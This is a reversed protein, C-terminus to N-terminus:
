KILRQYFAGNPNTIEVFYVGNEYTSFDVETYDEHEKIFLVRGNNDLIRLIGAEGKIHLENFVPNPYIAVDLEINSNLGNTSIYVIDDIAFYTPTNIWGGSMDSSEFRFNVKSVDFAFGSFDVTEWTDVIYDQGNDSFRYDALYFEISDKQSQNFDSGIIWVRFYDEGNTGDPSGSANNPSGFQKGYTDGDRMSIATYATNTIKFSNILNGNGGDIEPINYGVAYTVSNNAGNGPYASYQNSWGATTNDTMNSIAFGEWSMWSANYYNNLSIGDIVFSGGGASGNDYTEPTLGFSEFDVLNQAQITAGMILATAIVYIKKM